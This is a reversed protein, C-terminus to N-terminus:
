REDDDNTSAAYLEVDLSYTLATFTKDLVHTSYGQDSCRGRNIPVKNKKLVRKAFPILLHPVCFEACEYSEGDDEGALWRFFSESTKGSVEAVLSRADGEVGDDDGSLFSSAALDDIDVTYFSKCGTRFAELYTEKPSAVTTVFLPVFLLASLALLSCGIARKVLKGRRAAHHDPCTSRQDDMTEYDNSVNGDFNNYESESEAPSAPFSLHTGFALPGPPSIDGNTSGMELQIGTQRLVNMMPGPLWLDITRATQATIWGTVMAAVIMVWSNFPFLVVVVITDFIIAGLSLFPRVFSNWYFALHFSQLGILLPIATTSAGRRQPVLCYTANIVTAMIIIITVFLWPSKFDLLMREELKRIRYWLYIYALVLTLVGSVLFNSTFLRFWQHKYVIMSPNNIGFVSLGVASPGLSPNNIPHAFGESIIMVLFYVTIWATYGATVPYDDMSTLILRVRRRFSRTRRTAMSEIEDAASTVSPAWLGDTNEEKKPSAKPDVDQEDGSESIQLSSQRRIRHIVLTILLLTGLLSALLFGRFAPKVSLYLADERFVSAAFSPFDEEQLAYYLGLSCQGESDIWYSKVNKHRKAIYSVSSTLEDYWLEDLDDYRSKDNYEDDWYYHADDDNNEDKEGSMYEYYTQSEPDQTHSVFGWRNKNNGKRLIYDWMLTPFDETTRYKDYAIGISSLIPGPNWNGIANELFYSPTLYVPSDAMATLQTVRNGFHNYHKHLLQQVIPVATGGASCGTVSAHRLHPFNHYIWKLVARINNAGMHHVVRKDSGGDDDSYDNSYVMTNSGLHLDQTCYPIIVTNYRTFDVSRDGEGDYGFKSSCLMNTESGSMEMGYQVEKCSKGLVDDMTETLNLMDSAQDCTDYDWCAGGGM